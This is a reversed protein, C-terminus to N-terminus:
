LGKDIQACLHRGRELQRLADAENQTRACLYWILEKKKADSLSADCDECWIFTGYETSFKGPVSMQGSTPSTRVISDQVTKFAAVDPIHHFEIYDGGFEYEGKCGPCRGKYDRPKPKRQKLRM